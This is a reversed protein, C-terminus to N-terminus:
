DTESKGNEIFVTKTTMFSENVDLLQLDKPRLEPKYWTLQLPSQPTRQNLLIFVLRHVKTPVSLGDITLKFNSQHTYYEKLLGLKDCYPLIEKCASEVEMVASLSAFGHLTMVPEWQFGRKVFSTTYKSSTSLLGNHQKTRTVFDNTMGTYIHPTRTNTLRFMYVLSGCDQANLKKPHELHQIWNTDNNWLYRQKCNFLWEKCPAKRAAKKRRQVVKSLPINTVRNTNDCIETM